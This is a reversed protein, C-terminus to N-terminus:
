GFFFVFFFFLLLLARSSSTVIASQRPSSSEGLIILDCLVLLPLCGLLLPPLLLPAPSHRDEYLESIEERSAEAFWPWRACSRGGACVIGGLDWCCFDRDEEGGLDLGLVAVM